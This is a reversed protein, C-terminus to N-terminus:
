AELVFTLMLAQSNPYKPVKSVTFSNYYYFSLHTWKLTMKSSQTCTIIFKFFKDLNSYLNQTINESMSSFSHLFPVLIIM